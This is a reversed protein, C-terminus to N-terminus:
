AEGNASWDRGFGREFWGFRGTSTLEIRDRDSATHAELEYVEREASYALAVDIRKADREAVTTGTGTLRASADLEPKRASGTVAVNASISREVAATAVTGLVRLPRSYARVNARLPADLVADLKADGARAFTPGDLGHEVVAAIWP